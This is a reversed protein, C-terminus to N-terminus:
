WRFIAWGPVMFDPELEKRRTELNGDGDADILYYPPGKDPTIRVMYLQGNYRYEEVTQGPRKIIRVEPEFEGPQGPTEILPPPPPVDGQQAWAASLPSLALLALSLAIRNMMM